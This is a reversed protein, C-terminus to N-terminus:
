RNKFSSVDNLPTPPLPPIFFCCTTQHAGTHRVTGSQPSHARARRNIEVCRSAESPRRRSPSHLPPESSSGTQRTRRDLRRRRRSPASLCLPGTSDWSMAAFVVSGLTCWNATVGSPASPSCSSSWLSVESSSVSHFSTWLFLNTKKPRYNSDM